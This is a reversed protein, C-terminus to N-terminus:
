RKFTSDFCSLIELFIFFLSSHPSHLFYCRFPNNLEIPIIINHLICILIFTYNTQIHEAFTITSEPIKVAHFMKNVLVAVVIPSVAIVPM